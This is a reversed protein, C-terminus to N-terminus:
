AFGQTDLHNQWGPIFPWVYGNGAIYGGITSLWGWWQISAGTAYREPQRDRELPTRTRDKRTMRSKSCSHRSRVTLTPAVVM